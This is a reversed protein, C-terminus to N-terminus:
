TGLDLQRRMARFMRDLIMRSESARAAARLAPAKGRVHREVAYPPPTLGYKTANQLTKLRNFGM